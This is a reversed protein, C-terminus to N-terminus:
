FGLTGSHLEKSVRLLSDSTRPNFLFVGTFGTIAFIIVIILIGEVPGSFVGLYLQGLRSMDTPKSHPHTHLDYGHLVGGMYDSLFQSTYSDAIRCDVMFSWPELSASCACSGVPLDDFLYTASIRIITVTTNIADCGVRIILSSHRNMEKSFMGHDFMEGLPGAM